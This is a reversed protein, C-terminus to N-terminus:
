MFIVCSKIVTETSNILEGSVPKTLSQESTCITTKSIHPFKERSKFVYFGKMSTSPVVLVVEEVLDLDRHYCASSPLGSM